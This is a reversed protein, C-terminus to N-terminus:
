TRGGASKRAHMHKAETVKALEQVLFYDVFASADLLDRWSPIVQAHDESGNRAFTGEGDQLGISNGPV